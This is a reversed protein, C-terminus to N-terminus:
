HGTFRPKRKELFATAGERADTTNFLEGFAEIEKQFGRDDNISADNTLKIIQEVALPAKGIITQLIEITKILLNEPSTVYNVLGSEKAENSDIINGAMLMEMAKGKGVLRTLRQTGGYGPILGLSVEPQGFKANESCLRFHCAM